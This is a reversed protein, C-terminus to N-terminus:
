FKMMEFDIERGLQSVYYIVSGYLQVATVLHISVSKLTKCTKNLMELIDDWFVTM